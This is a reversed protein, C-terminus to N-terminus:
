TYVGYEIRGLLDEVLRIGAPTALLEIPRRQDLAMAPRKLWDEAEGQAELFHSAVPGCPPQQPLRQDGARESRRSGPDCSSRWRGPAARNACPKSIPRPSGTPISRATRGSTRTRGGLAACGAM